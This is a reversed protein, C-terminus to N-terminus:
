FTAAVGMSIVNRANLPFKMVWEGMNEFHVPIDMIGTPRPANLWAWSMDQLIVISFSIIWLNWIMVSIGIFSLPYGM